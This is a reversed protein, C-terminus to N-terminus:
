ARKRRGGAVSKGLARAVRKEIAQAEERLCAKFEAVLRSKPKLAPTFISTQMMRLPKLPVLAFLAPDIALPVLPDTIMIAGIQLLLACGHEVSNATYQPRFEVGEAHFLQELEDHLPGVPTAILKHAAIDAARM